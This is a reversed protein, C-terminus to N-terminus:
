KKVNSLQEKIEELGQDFRKMKIGLKIIKDNKLALKFPRFARGRFYDERKVQNIKVKFNFSCAILKIAEYVSLSQSGVVHYIGILEKEIFIDLADSIDDIFTPTIIHDILGSIEKEDKIKEIIRRVFDKKQFFVARYPYAIRLIANNESYNSVRKEGEYKTYGYWNVPNPKDDETYFDKTGDFVFDTSIYIVRKGLKQAIKVINETGIVNVMWAQGDEGLIKDDECADVDTKAAMHVITKAESGAIIRELSEYDTIDVGSALSLDIFSYKDELLEKIRTGVLGSLGTVLVPKKM